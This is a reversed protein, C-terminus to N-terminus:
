AAKPPPSVPDQHVSAYISTYFSIHTTHYALPPLEIGSRPQFFLVIGSTTSDVEEENSEPVNHDFLGESVLEYVSEIDNVSLDETPLIAGQRTRYIDPPNISINIM